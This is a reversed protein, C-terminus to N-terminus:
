SWLFAGAIGLIGKVFRGGSGVGALGEAKVRKNADEEGLDGDEEEIRAVGLEGLGKLDGAFDGVLFTSRSNATGNGIVGELRALEGLM